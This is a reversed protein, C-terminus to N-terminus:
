AHPGLYFSDYFIMDTLNNTMKIIDLAICYMTNLALYNNWKYCSLIQVFYKLIQIVANLIM